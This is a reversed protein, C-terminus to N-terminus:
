LLGVWAAWHHNTTRNTELTAEPNLGAQRLHKVLDKPGTLVDQGYGQHGPPFFHQSILLHGNPTLLKALAELTEPLSELLSWMVQALIILDFSKEPFVPEKNLTRANLPRLTLRPDNLRPLARELATPSIDTIIGTASPSSQWITEAVVSSFFGLGAGIDLFHNINAGSTSLLLLAAQMDLRLGLEEIRWPDACARYMEEYNGIHEGNAIFYKRYDPEM